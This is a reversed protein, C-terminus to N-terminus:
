SSSPKFLLLTKLSYRLARVKVAHLGLAGGSVHKYVGGAYSM